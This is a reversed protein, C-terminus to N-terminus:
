KGPRFAPSIFYQTILPKLGFFLTYAEVIKKGSVTQDEYLNPQLGNINRTM